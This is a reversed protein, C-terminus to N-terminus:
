PVPPTSAFSLEAPTAGLEDFTFPRGCEPCRQETLGYLYYDCGPCHGKSECFPALRCTLMQGFTRLWSQDTLAAAEGVSALVIILCAALSLYLGYLPDGFVLWFGFWILGSLGGLFWLCLRCQHRRRIALVMGTLLLPPCLVNLVLNVCDQTTWPSTAWGSAVGERLTFVLVVIAAYGLLFIVALTSAKQLKPWAVITALAGILLAAGFAYAVFYVAVVVLAEIPWSGNRAENLAEILSTAPVIPENCGQVAPLFFCTTLLLGSFLSLVRWKRARRDPLHKNSPEPM